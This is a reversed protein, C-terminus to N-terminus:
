TRFKKFKKAVVLEQPKCASLVACMSALVCRLHMANGALSHLVEANVESIPLKPLPRQQLLAQNFDPTSPGGHDVVPEYEGSRNQWAEGLSPGIGSM